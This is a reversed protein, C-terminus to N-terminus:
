YIIVKNMYASGNGNSKLFYIGSPLAHRPNVEFSKQTQDVQKDFVVQGLYNVLQVHDINIQEPVIVNFKNSAPNPYIIIEGSTELENVSVYQSITVNDIFLPNGYASYSEFAFRIDAQGAWPTLDINVCSSGYGYGCWDELTEPWFDDNQEATAFNGSGDEGAAFVRQWSEGCDDSVYVILSDTIEFHRKAYAHKFELAASSLGSLNVPPSILRDREGIVTYVSFNIGAAMNGPSTGAVEYIGWTVDNDPNEVTWNQSSFGLEEFTEKFYPVYGGSTVINEIELSSPGNLNWATLKASYTGAEDFLV